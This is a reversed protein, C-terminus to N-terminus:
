AFSAHWDRLPRQGLKLRGILRGLKCVVSWAREAFTMSARLFALCPSMKVFSILSCNRCRILSCSLPGCPRSDRWFWEGPLPGDLELHMDVLDIRRLKGARRNRRRQQQLQGLEVSPKFVPNNAPVKAKYSTFDCIIM